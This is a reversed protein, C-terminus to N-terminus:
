VAFQMDLNHYKHAANKIKHAVSILVIRNERKFYEKM